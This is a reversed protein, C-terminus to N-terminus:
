AADEARADGSAEHAAQLVLLEQLLKRYAEGGRRAAPWFALPVGNASAERIQTDVPIVTQTVLDGHTERLEALCARSAHTRADFLTPVIRRRLPM